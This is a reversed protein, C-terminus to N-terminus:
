KFVKANKLISPSFVVGLQEALDLNVIIEGKKNEVVPIKSPPTGDLIRLAAQASWEGQEDASKALTLLVFGALWSNITGTPIKTNQQIFAKAENEDWRDMGANNGFFLIDVDKQSNLFAQKFEDYTKVWYVAMKGDFFRENYIQAVKRETESDVTLYALRQGRAYAKLHEVLQGPLEVEIMGTMNSTPYGYMSADWNVACFIVPVTQDKLFPVVLCKQANDDAAIVVDPRFSDIEAKAKVGAQMCFEEAPNQKTDLRVIKLEAGTGDLVKKLGAEIGDSWEYGQHYSNVFLIKKGAYSPGTGGTKQPVPAAAAPGCASVLGALLILVIGVTLCRKWNATPTCERYVRNSKDSM